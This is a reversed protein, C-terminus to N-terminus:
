TQSFDDSPKSLHLFNPPRGVQFLVRGASLFCCAMFRLENPPLLKLEVGLLPPPLFTFVQFSM